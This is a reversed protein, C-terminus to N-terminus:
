FAWRAKLQGTHGVLSDRIDADYDLSLDVGAASAFTVGAGANISSRDAKLGSVKFAAGGGAFNTTSEGNVDGANYVYKARLAPKLSGGGDMPLNWAVQGGLGLLIANYTESDVTLSAGGAGTETYKDQNAGVWQASAMPTLTMGSMDFDQGAEVKLGYQIGDWDGKATGVGTNRSSEYTNWGLNAQGNVFMGTDYTHSGYATLMYSNIDTSAGNANNSDVTGAGYSFALGTTMGDMLTDTDIGVSAGATTADYGKAGDKDDQTVIAGFGQMWFHNSFMGDGTNMSRGRLMALRNSAQNGTSMALNSAAAGVGDTGPALKEIVTDVGATTTQTSILSQIASLQTNTTSSITDLVTAINDGTTDNTLASTAARLVTLSIEQSNAGSRALQFTYVGQTATTLSPLVAGTTGFTNSVIRYQTGSPIFGVSSGLAITVSGGVFTSANGGLELVGISSSTDLGVKLVGQNRFSAASASVTKGAAIHLTGSVKMDSTNALSLSESVNLIGGSTVSVTTLNNDLTHRLHVTSNSVKLTEVGTIAGKTTYATSSSVTMTDTGAGGAITGSISAGNYLNITDAGGGMDLNGILSGGESHYVDATNSTTVSGSITGTNRITTAGSGPGAGADSQHAIAVSNGGVAAITGSNNITIAGGQNAMIVVSGSANSSQVTASSSVQLVNQGTTGSIEVAAVGTTNSIVASGSVNWGGVTTSTQLTPSTAATNNSSITDANAAATTAAVIATATVLKRTISM